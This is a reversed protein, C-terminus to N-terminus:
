TVIETALVDRRIESVDAYPSALAFEIAETLEQDIESEIKALRADAVGLNALRKRFRPLPDAVAAEEFFSKPVYTLPSGFTHGLIRYTMAEILTPGKGARARDAAARTAKFMAVPDNGDVRVGKMGYGAARTVIQEVSTGGEFSTHEAWRNNQCLFIVPLKWLSAMNLAEHFAGINSAGDGFCVITVRDEGRLQSALAL